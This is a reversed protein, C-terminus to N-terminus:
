VMNVSIGKEQVKSEEFDAKGEGSLDDSYLSKRFFKSPAYLSSVPPFKLEVSLPPLENLPIGM